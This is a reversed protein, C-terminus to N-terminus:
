HASPDWKFKWDPQFCSCKKGTPQAEKACPSLDREAQSCVSGCKWKYDTSWDCKMAQTPHPFNVKDEATLNPICSADNYAKLEHPNCVDNHPVCIWSDHDYKWTYGVDCIKNAPPTPIVKKMKMVYYVTLGILLLVLLVGLIKKTHM